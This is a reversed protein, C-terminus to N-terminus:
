KHSHETPMDWSILANFVDNSVNEKWKLAVERVYNKKGICYAKHAENATNFYGLNKLKRGVGINARFMNARKDAKNVSVGIPYEGRASARSNFLNNIERPVFCCTEPSYLKNGKFLIDKDLHYGMGHFEHNKCWEAFNQFNHWEKCVSCGVYSPNKSKYADSYCRRLMQIWTAYESDNNSIYESIDKRNHAPHYGVGHVLNSM